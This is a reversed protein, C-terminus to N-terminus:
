LSGINHHPKLAETLSFAQRIKGLHFCSHFREFVLEIRYTLYSFAVSGLSNIIQIELDRKVVSSRTDILIIVYVFVGVHM